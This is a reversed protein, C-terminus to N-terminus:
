DVQYFSGDNNIRFHKNNIEITGDNDINFDPYGGDKDQYGVQLYKNLDIVGDKAVFLLGVRLNSEALISEAVYESIFSNNERFAEFLDDNAVLFIIDIDEYQAVKTYYYYPIAGYIKSVIKIGRAYSGTSEKKLVDSGDYLISKGGTENVEVFMGAEDIRYFKLSFSSKKNEEHEETEVKITYDDLVWFKKKVYPIDKPTPEGACEYCYASYPTVDLTNDPNIIKNKATYLQMLDSDGTEENVLLVDFDKYPPLIDYIHGEWDVLLKLRCSTDMAKCVNQTLGEEQHSTHIKQAYSFFFFMVVLVILLAFSNVLSRKM